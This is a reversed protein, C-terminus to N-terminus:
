LALALAVLSFSLKTLWDTLWNILSNEMTSIDWTYGPGTAHCGFRHEFVFDIFSNRLMLPGDLMSTDIPSLGLWLSTKQSTEQLNYNLNSFTSQPLNNSLSPSCSHFVQTPRLLQKRDVVKIYLLLLQDASQKVPAWGNDAAWLWTIFLSGRESLFNATWETSMKIHCFYCCLCWLHSRQTASTTALWYWILAFGYCIYLNITVWQEKIETFEEQKTMETESADETDVFCYEFPTIM